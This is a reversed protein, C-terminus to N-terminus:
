RFCIRFSINKFFNSKNMWQYLLSHQHLRMSLYNLHCNHYHHNNNSQIRNPVVIILIIIIQHINRHHISKQRFMKARINTTHHHHPPPPRHRRSNLLQARHQHNFNPTSNKRRNYLKWLHKVYAIRIIKNSFKRKRVREVDIVSSKRKPKMRMRARSKM